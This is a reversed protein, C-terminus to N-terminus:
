RVFDRVIKRMAPSYSLQLHGIGIYKNTAGTVIGAAWWTGHINLHKTGKRAVRNYPVDITVTMKPVPNYTMAVYAGQSNGIVVDYKYSSFAAELPSAVYVKHGDRKLEEGLADMGRFIFQDLGRILLINKGYTPVSLTLLLTLGLIIKKM